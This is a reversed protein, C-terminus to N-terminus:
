SAPGAIAQRGLARVHRRFATRLRRTVPGPRGAAIRTEDVKLVPIVEGTTCALFLEDLRTLASARLATQRVRIGLDRCLELVVQRTIGALIRNDAPHTFVIGQKVGFVNTHTGETVLGDRVFVAEYAGRDAAQMRALVNPLLGVAKVDCRGWRIDPVTVASVGRGLGPKWALVSTEVYVTPSAPSPGGMRPSVGRTVQIYVTADAGTLRNRRLLDACVRELSDFDPLVIRTVALSRRLRALHDAAHFLRGSYARIVEYVADAHTFGRDNPSIRVAPRRLFAGRPSDASRLWTWDNPMACM